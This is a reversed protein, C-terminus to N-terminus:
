SLHMRSVEPQHVPVSFMISFNDTIVAARGKYASFQDRHDHFSSRGDDHARHPAPSQRAAQSAPSLEDLRARWAKMSM